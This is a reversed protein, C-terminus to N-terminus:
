ATRRWVAVKVHTPTIDIPRNGGVNEVYLTGVGGNASGATSLYAWGTSSTAGGTHNTHWYAPYSETRTTRVTHAHEPMQDINLTVQSNGGTNGVESINDAAMLFADTIRSWTGGYITGPDIQDYRISVSGVPFFVDCLALVLSKLEGSGVGIKSLDQRIQVPYDENDVVAGGIAMLDKTPHATFVDFQTPIFLDATYTLGLADTITVSAMHTATSLLDGTWVAEQGSGVSEWGSVSVTAGDVTLTMSATNGTLSLSPRASITVQEGSRSYDIAVTPNTYYLVDLADMSYVATFGRSDTVSVSPVVEGITALTAAGITDGSTFANDTATNGSVNLAASVLSAGPWTTNSEAQVTASLQAFGRVIYGRNELWANGYNIVAVVSSITPVAEAPVALTLTATKTGISVGGNFTECIISCLGAPPNAPVQAALIYPPTWTAGATVNEATIDGNANLFSYTLKHTFEASAPSLSIQVATKGIEATNVNLMPMTARPITTLTFTGSASCSGPSYAGTAAFSASINVTKSGDSNHLINTFTFTALTATGTSGEAFNPSYKATKTVGNVTASVTFSNSSIWGWRTHTLKVAVTVSSTNNDVSVASESLYAFFDYRSTNLSVSGNITKTLAM